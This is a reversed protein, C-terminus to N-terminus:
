VRPHPHRYPYHSAREPNRAGARIIAFWYVVTYPVQIRHGDGPRPHLHSHESLGSLDPCRAPGPNHRSSAAPFLGGGVRNKKCIVYVFIPM